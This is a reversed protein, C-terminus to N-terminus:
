WRREETIGNHSHIECLYDGFEVLFSISDIFCQM